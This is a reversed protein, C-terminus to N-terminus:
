RVSVTGRGHGARLKIHTIEHKSSILPRQRHWPWTGSETPAHDRTELKEASASPAAAM